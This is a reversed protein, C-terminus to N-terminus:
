KHKKFSMLCENIYLVMAEPSTQRCFKYSPTYRQMFMSLSDGQLRTLKSVYTRSFRFDVYFTEENDRLRKKLQRVQKEKKSFYNIPSVVIGAGETPTAGGVAKHPARQYIHNYEDRRNLSDQQYKNLDGQVNVMPLSKTEQRLLVNYGSDLIFAVVRVTDPKYGVSSFVLVDGITASIKYNGGMDSQKHLTQTLNIIDVGMLVEDSQDRFIKGTVYRQASACFFCATFLACFCAYRFVM